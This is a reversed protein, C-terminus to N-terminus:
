TVRRVTRDHGMAGIDAEFLGRRNRLEPQAVLERGAVAIVRVRQQAADAGRRGVDVVVRQQARPRDDVHGGVLGADVGEAGRERVSADQAACHRRHAEGAARHEVEGVLVADELVRALLHRVRKEHRQALRRLPPRLVPLLPV